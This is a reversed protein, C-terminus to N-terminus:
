PNYFNYTDSELQTVVKQFEIENITNVDHFFMKYRSFGQLLLPEGALKGFMMKGKVLASHRYLEYNQNKSKNYVLLYNVNDRDFSLNEKIIDNFILLSDSIKTRIKEIGDPKEDIQCNKFEIFLFQKKSKLIILADNSRLPFEAKGLVNICYAKKVYDFNIARVKTSNTLYNSHNDKSTEKLTTDYKLFLPEKTCDIM